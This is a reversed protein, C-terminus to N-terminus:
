KLDAIEVIGRLLKDSALLKSKVAPLLVHEMMRSLQSRRRTIMPDERAKRPEEETAKAADGDSKDIFGESNGGSSPASGDDTTPTLPERVVNRTPLQEPTYFTALEM